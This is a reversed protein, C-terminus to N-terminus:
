SDSSANLICDAKLIVFGEHELASCSDMFNAIAPLTGTALTAKAQEAAAFLPQTETHRFKELWYSNAIYVPTFASREVLLFDVGYKQIFQQLQNLDPSYHATFLDVARQTLEFYYAKHYGLVYSPSAVISRRSFYPLNDTDKTISAILTDKPQQAFFEYVPPVKGVKYDVDPFDRILVPYILMLVFLVFAFPFLTGGWIPHRDRRVKQVIADVILTFAIAAVIPMLVRLSHETYRNPLHLKFLLLHAAFFMGTSVLLLQGLVQIGPRIKETLPFASRFLMLIPFTVGLIVQPLTFSLKCWESPFFGTRRWCLWYEWTNDIYFSPWLTRAEEATMVPGFESSKFAYPLMVFFAVALGIGSFRYVAPDQTFHLRRNEWRFLQLVLIGSALFVCQPYFLGLLAIAAATLLLKRQLLYYLFAFFLPYVFAVPSGSPVDDQMWLNQNVLLSAVFGAFPVPLIQLTVGFCYLTTIIVLILPLIQNFAFPDIGLKAVIDYLTTYGTPAVSQFYDAMLDQPFMEADLLRQTWFVHQRADDQVVYPHKFVQQLGLGVFLIAFTLSLTLWFIQSSRSAKPLPTTFFTQLYSTLM